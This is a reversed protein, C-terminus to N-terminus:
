FYIIVGSNIFGIFNCIQGEKLLFEDKNLRRLELSNKFLSFDEDTLSIITDINNRIKELKDM